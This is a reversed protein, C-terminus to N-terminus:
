DHLAEAGATWYEPWINAPHVGIRCAIRDAQLFPVGSARYQSVSRHNIRCAGAIARDSTGADSLFRELRWFPLRLNTLKM